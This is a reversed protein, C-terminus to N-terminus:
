MLTVSFLLCVFNGCSHKCHIIPYCLSFQFISIVLLFPPPHVGLQMRKESSPVRACVYVCQVRVAVENTVRASLVLLIVNSSTSPKCTYGSVLSASYKCCSHRGNASQDSQTHVM